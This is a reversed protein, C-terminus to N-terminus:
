RICCAKILCSAEHPFFVLSMEYCHVDEEISLFAM